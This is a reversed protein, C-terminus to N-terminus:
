AAAACASWRPRTPPPRPPRSATLRREAVALVRLGKTALKAVMPALRGSDGALAASLVEPAGKITLRNGVLAAAFPRGSQFPLYADREPAETQGAARRIADDTAHDARGNRAFM